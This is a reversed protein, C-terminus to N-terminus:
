RVTYLSGPLLLLGSTCEGTLLIRLKTVGLTDTPESLGDLAIGTVGKGAVIHIM